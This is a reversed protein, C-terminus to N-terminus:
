VKNFNSFDFVLLLVTKIETCASNKIIFIWSLLLFYKNSLDSLTMGLKESLDYNGNLALYHDWITNNNDYTNLFGFIASTFEVGGKNSYQENRENYYDLGARYTM